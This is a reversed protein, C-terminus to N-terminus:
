LQPHNQKLVKNLGKAHLEKMKREITNQDNNPNRILSSFTILWIRERDKEREAIDKRCEKCEVLM